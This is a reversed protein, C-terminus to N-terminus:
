IRQGDRGVARPTRTSQGVGGSDDSWMLVGRDSSSEPTRRVPPIGAIYWAKKAEWDAAYKAKSMMGLHEWIM